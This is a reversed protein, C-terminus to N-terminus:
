EGEEQEYTKSNDKQLSPMQGLRLAGVEGIKDMGVTRQLLGSCRFERGSTREELVSDEPVHGEEEQLRM